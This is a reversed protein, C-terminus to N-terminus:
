MRCDEPAHYVHLMHYLMHALESAVVIVICFCRMPIIITGRYTITTQLPGGGRMLDIYVCLV